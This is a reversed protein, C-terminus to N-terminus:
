SHGIIEHRADDILKNWDNAPKPQILGLEEKEYETLKRKRNDPFFQYLAVDRYASGARKLFAASYNEVYELDKHTIERMDLSQYYKGFGRFKDQLKNVDLNRKQSKSLLM